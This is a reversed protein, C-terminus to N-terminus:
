SSVEATELQNQIQRGREACTDFDGYTHEWTRLVRLEDLLAQRETASM